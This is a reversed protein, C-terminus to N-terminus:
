ADSTLGLSEDTPLPGSMMFGDIRLDEASDADLNVWATGRVPRQDMELAMLATFPLGASPTQVVTDSDWAPVIALVRDGDFGVLRVLTRWVGNKPRGTANAKGASLQEVRDIDIFAEETMLHSITKVVLDTDDNLVGPDEVAEVFQERLYRTLVHGTVPSCLLLLPIRNDGVRFALVNARAQGNDGVAGIAYAVRDGDRRWLAFQEFPSLDFLCSLRARQLPASWRKLWRQDAFCRLSVNVYVAVRDTAANIIGALQDPTDLVIMDLPGSDADGSRTAVVPEAGLRDLWKRDPGTFQFQELLRFAPRVACYVYTEDGSASLLRRRHTQSLHTLQALRVERPVTRIVLRERPRIEYGEDEVTREDTSPALIGTTQPAIREAADIVQQILDRHGDYALTTSPALLGAARRFLHESCTQWAPGYEEDYTDVRLAPDTVAARLAELAASNAIADECEAWAKRWFGESVRQHLQGFRDDPRDAGGLAHWAGASLGDELLRALGNSQMCVRIAAEIMLEKRRDHDPLHPVLDSADRYWGWYDSYGRLLGLDGDGVLWLSGFTAFAEHTIRCGDVLQRLAAVYGSDAHRALVAYGALAMGYATTDNLVVHLAEHTTVLRGGPSDADDGRLTTSWADVNNYAGENVESGGALLLSVLHDAM